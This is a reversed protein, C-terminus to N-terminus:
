TNIRKGRHPNQSLQFRKHTFSQGGFEKPIITGTLGLEGCRHFLDWPFKAERDMERNRPAVEKEAFERVMKRLMDQSDTTKLRM